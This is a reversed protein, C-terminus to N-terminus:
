HDPYDLPLFGTATARRVVLWEVGTPSVMAERAPHRARRVPDPVRSVHPLLEHEWLDAMRVFNERSPSVWVGWSFVEDGGIV